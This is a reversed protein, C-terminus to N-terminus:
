FHRIIALRTTTPVASAKRKPDPLDRDTSQFATTMADFRLSWSDSLAIEVGLGFALATWLASRASDFSPKVRVNGVVVGGTAYVLINDWAYGGRLRASGSWDSAAALTGFGPAETSRHFGLGMLDAEVGWVWPGNAMNYGMVVGGTPSAGSVHRDYGGFGEINATVSTVGAAAGVYPGQWSRSAEPIHGLDFDLDAAAAPRGLALLVGAGLGALFALQM